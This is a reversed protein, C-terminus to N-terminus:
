VSSDMNRLPVFRGRTNNKVLGSLASLNSSRKQRRAFWVFGICLLATVTLVFYLANFSSSDSEDDDWDSLESESNHSNSSSSSEAAKAAIIEAVKKDILDTHPKAEYQASQFRPDAELQAQANATADVSVPPELSGSLLISNAM